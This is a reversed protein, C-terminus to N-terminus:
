TGDVKMEHLLCSPCESDEVSAEVCEPRVLAMKQGCTLMYIGYGRPCEVGM